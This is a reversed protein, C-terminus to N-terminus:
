QDVSNVHLTVMRNSWRLAFEELGSLHVLFILHRPASEGWWGVIAQGIGSASYIDMSYRDEGLSERQSFAIQNGDGGVTIAYGVEGARGQTCAALLYAAGGTLITRRSLREVKM